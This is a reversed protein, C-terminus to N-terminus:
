PEQLACLAGLSNGGTSRAASPSMIKIHNKPSQSARRGKLTAQDEPKGVQLLTKSFADLM